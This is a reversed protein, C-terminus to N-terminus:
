GVDRIDAAGIDLRTAAEDALAELRVVDSGSFLREGEVVMVVIVGFSGIPAAIEVLGDSPDPEVSGGLGAVTTRGGALVRGAVGDGYAVAAGLRDPPLRSGTVVVGDGSRKLVIEVRGAALDVRALAALGALVRLERASHGTQWIAAREAASGERTRDSDGAAMAAALALAGAVAVGALVLILVWDVTYSRIYGKRTPPLVVRENRAFVPLV